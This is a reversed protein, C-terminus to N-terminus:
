EFGATKDCKNMLDCNSLSNQPRVKEHIKIMFAVNELVQHM